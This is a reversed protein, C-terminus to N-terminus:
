SQQDPDPKSGVVKKKEEQVVEKTNTKTSSSNDVKTKPVYQM